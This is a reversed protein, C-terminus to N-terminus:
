PRPFPSVPTKKGGFRQHADWLPGPAVIGAQRDKPDQVLLALTFPQLSGGGRGQALVALPTALLTAAMMAATGSVAFLRTHGMSRDEMPTFHPDLAPRRGSAAVDTRGGSRAGTFNTGAGIGRSRRSRMM